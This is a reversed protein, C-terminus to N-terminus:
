KFSLTHAFSPLAQYASSLITQAFDPYHTSGPHPEATYSDTYCMRYSKNAGKPQTQVKSKGARLLDRQKAHPHEYRHTTIVWPSTSQAAATHLSKLRCQNQECLGNSARDAVRAHGGTWCLVRKFEGAREIVWNLVWESGHREILQPLWRILWYNM